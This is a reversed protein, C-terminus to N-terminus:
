QATLVNFHLADRRLACTFLWAGFIMPVPYHLAPNFFMFIGYLFISLAEDFRNKGLFMPSTVCKLLAVTYTGAALILAAAGGEFLIQLWDNHLWNWHSGPDINGYNQLNVSFVHYTGWGTGFPIYVPSAWREMMFKWITIRGSTFFLQNGLLWYGIGGLALIVAGSLAIRRLGKIPNLSLAAYVAFLGLAISSQSALTAALVLVAIWWHGRKAILPLACVMVSASLSPNGIFGGCSNNLTCHGSVYRFLITAANMVVVISVISRGWGRLSKINEAALMLPVLIILLKLLSDAAMFKLATQSYIDLMGNGNADLACRKAVTDMVCLFEYRNHEITWFWITNIGVYGLFSSAFLGFRPYVWLACWGIFFCALIFSVQLHYNTIYQM